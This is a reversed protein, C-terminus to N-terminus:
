ERKGREREYIISKSAARQALSVSLLDLKLGSTDHANNFDGGTSRGNPFPPFHRTKPHWKPVSPRGENSCFSLVTAFQMTKHQCHSAPSLAPGGWCSYSFQCVLAQIGHYTRLAFRDKYTKGSETVAPAGRGGVLRGM